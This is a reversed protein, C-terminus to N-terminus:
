QVAPIFQIANKHQLSPANAILTIRTISDGWVRKLRADALEVHELTLNLKDTDYKVLLSRGANAPHILKLGEALKEAKCMTILSYTISEPQSLLQYKDTVTILNGRILECTRRWNKIGAHKPYASHIDLALTVKNDTSQYTVNEASFTRGAQQMTGDVAPLNHWGSQMTWITYRDNSFTKASYEEVGIDIIMPHGDLYIIFNGVDNHNHSENNHGGKAALYLGKQSGHTDRAAMLQLGPMWIDRLIPAEAEFDILKPYVHIDRLTRGISYRWSRKKDTDQQYLYAGFKQMRDDNIRSGFQYVLSANPRVIASADAFNIFYNDSIHVHYIYKGM